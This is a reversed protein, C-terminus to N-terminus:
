AARGFRARLRNTLAHLGPTWYIGAAVALYPLFGELVTVQTAILALIAPFIGIAINDVVFRIASDIKGKARTKRNATNDAGHAKFWALTDGIAQKMPTQEFEPHEAKFKADNLVVTTEYKYSLSAVERM